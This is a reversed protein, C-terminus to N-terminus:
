RCCKARRAVPGNNAGPWWRGLGRLSLVSVLAAGVVEELSLRVSSPRHAVACGFVQGSTAAPTVCPRSFALSRRRQSILVLVPDRDAYDAEFARWYSAADVTPPEDVAAVMGQLMEQWGALVHTVVGLRSWGHCRSSGLLDYESFEAAAQCFADVTEACVARGENIGISLSM